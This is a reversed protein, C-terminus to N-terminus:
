VFRNYFVFILIVAFFYILYTHISGTQIRLKAKQSFRKIIKFLPNYLYTEFISIDSTRYEISKPHYQLNGEVITKRAPKFLIKFAIKIPKSFGTASYQMRSNLAEFGCDWTTSKREIYKGGGQRIVLLTLLIVAGVFILVV